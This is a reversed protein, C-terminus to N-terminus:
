AVNIAMAGTVTMMLTATRVLLRGGALWLRLLAARWVEQAVAVRKRKLESQRSNRLTLKKEVKLRLTAALLGGRADVKRTGPSSPLQRRKKLKAKEFNTVESLLEASTAKGSCEDFTKDSSNLSSSAGRAWAPWTTSSKWWWCKQPCSTLGGSEQEQLLLHHRHKIEVQVRTQTLSYPQDLMRENLNQMKSNMTRLIWVLSGNRRM